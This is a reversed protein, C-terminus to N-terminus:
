IPVFKDQCEFCENFRITIEKGVCAMRANAIRGIFISPCSINLKSQFLLKGLRCHARIIGLIVDSQLDVM